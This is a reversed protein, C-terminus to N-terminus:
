QRRLHRGASVIAVVGALLLPLGISFVGLVGMMMLLVGSISLAGPGFAAARTAGFTALGAALVLVGIVWLLPAHGQSRMLMAYVVVM